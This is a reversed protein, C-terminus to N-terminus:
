TNAVARTQDQRILGAGNDIGTLRAAQNVLRRMADSPTTQWMASLEAVQKRETENVRVIVFRHRANDLQPRGRKGM